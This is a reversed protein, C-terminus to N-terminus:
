RERITEFHAAFRACASADRLAFESSLSVAAVYGFLAVLGGLGRRAARTEAFRLAISIMRKM